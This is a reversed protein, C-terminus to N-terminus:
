DLWWLLSLCLVKGGCSRPLQARLLPPPLLVQLTCMRVCRQQLEEDRPALGAAVEYCLLALSPRNQGQYADGLRAWNKATGPAFTIALLAAERARCM